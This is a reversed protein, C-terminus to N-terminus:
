PCPNIYWQNDSGAIIFVGPNLEAYTPPIANSNGIPLFLQVGVEFLGGAGGDIDVNSISITNSDNYSDFTVVHGRIYVIVYGQGLLNVGKSLTITVDYNGTGPICVAEVNTVTIDCCPQFLIEIARYLSKSVLGKITKLVTAKMTSLTPRASFTAM